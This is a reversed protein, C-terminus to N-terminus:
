IASRDHAQRSETDAATSGPVEEAKAAVSKGSFRLLKSSRRLGIVPVRRTGGKIRDDIEISIQHYPSTWRTEGVFEWVPDGREDYKTVRKPLM